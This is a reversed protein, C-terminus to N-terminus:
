PGSAAPSSPPRPSCCTRGQTSSGPWARTRESTTPWAGAAPRRWHSYSQKSSHSGGQGHARGPRGYGPARGLCRRYYRDGKARHPAGGGGVTAGSPEVFSRELVPPREQEQAQALHLGPWLPGTHPPRTQPRIDRLGRWQTDGLLRGPASAAPRGHQAGPGADAGRELLDPQRHQHCRCVQHGSVDPERRAVAALGGSTTHARHLPGSLGPQPHDVRHGGGPVTRGPALRLPHLRHALRQLPRHGAAMRQREVPRSGRSLLLHVARTHLDRAREELWRLRVAERELIALLKRADKPQQPTVADKTLFNCCKRVVKVLRQARFIHPLVRIEDRSLPEVERYAQVFARSRRYDLGIGREPSDEEHVRCFAKISYALDMSRADLAARDYDVVGVLEDGQYILASRGFSGHVILKPLSPFAENLERQVLALHARLHAAAEQFRRREETGLLPRAATEAAALWGPGESGLAPLVPSPPHYYPGPFEAVLRHYLALGRGAALLHAERGPDYPSGPIFATLLFLQGGVETCPEGTWTRIPEPALYGRSRLYEILRVEFRLAVGTKRGNSRRLVYRGATTTLFFSVNSSGKPTRKWELWEGLHYVRQLAEVTEPPLTDREQFVISPQEPTSM